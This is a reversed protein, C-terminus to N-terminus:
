SKRNLDSALQWIEEAIDDPQADAGWVDDAAHEWITGGSDCKRILNSLARAAPKSVVFEIVDSEEYKTMLPLGRMERM